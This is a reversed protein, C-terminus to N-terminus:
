GSYVRRSSSSSSVGQCNWCWNYEKWFHQFNEFIIIRKWIVVFKHLSFTISNEFFMENTLIFIEINDVFMQQLQWPVVVAYLTLTNLTTTPLICLCVVVKTSISLNRKKFENHFLLAVGHLHPEKSQGQQLQAVKKPKNFPEFVTFFSTRWTTAVHFCWTSLKSSECIIISLIQWTPYVPEDDIAQRHNFM